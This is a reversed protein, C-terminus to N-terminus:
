TSGPPRWLETSEDAGVMSRHRTWIGLESDVSKHDFKASGINTMTNLFPRLYVFIPRIQGINFFLNPLVEEKTIEKKNYEIGIVSEPMPCDDSANCANANAIANASSRRKMFHSQRKEEHHSQLGGYLELFENDIQSM